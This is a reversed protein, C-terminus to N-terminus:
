APSTAHCGSGARLMGPLEVLAFLLKEVAYGLVRCQHGTATATPKLEGPAM